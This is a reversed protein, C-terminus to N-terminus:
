QDRLTVGLRAATWNRQTAPPLLGSVAQLPLGAPRASRLGLRIGTLSGRLQHSGLAGACPGPRPRPSHSSASCRACMGTPHLYLVEGNTMAVTCGGSQVGVVTGPMDSYRDDTLTCRIEDGPSFAKGEYLYTAM